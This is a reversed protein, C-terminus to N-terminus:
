ATENEPYYAVAEAILADFRALARDHQTTIAKETARAETREITKHYDGQGSVFSLHHTVGLGDASIWGVSVTTTVTGKPYSSKSTEITIKAAKGNIQTKTYTEATIGNHQSKFVRTEKTTM